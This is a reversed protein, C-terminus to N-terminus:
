VHICLFKELDKSAEQYYPSYTNLVRFLNYRDWFKNFNKAARRCQRSHTGWATNPLFKIEIEAWMYHIIVRSLVTIITFVV